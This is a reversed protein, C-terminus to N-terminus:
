ARAKLPEDEGFLTRQLGVVGRLPVPRVCPCTRRRMPPHAGELCAGDKGHRRLLHRCRCVTM